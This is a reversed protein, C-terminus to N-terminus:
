LAPIHAVIEGVYPAIDEPLQGRPFWQATELEGRDLILAPASLEVRFCHIIDRRHDLRGHLEGMEAWEVGDLGLEESMERHAAVLPSERRKISGGPLDWARRGYTHRVLLIRDRDTILCKVGRKHPRAIFWFVQLLRYAIRYGWRRATLTLSM